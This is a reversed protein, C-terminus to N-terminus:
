TTFTVYVIKVGVEPKEEFIHWISLFGHLKLQAYNNELRGEFQSLESTIGANLNKISFSFLLKKMCGRLLKLQM